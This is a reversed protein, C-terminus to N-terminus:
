HHFQNGQCASQPLHGLNFHERCWCFEMVYKVKSIKGPDPLTHQVGGRLNDRFWIHTICLSVFPM